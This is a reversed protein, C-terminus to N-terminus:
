APRAQQRATARVATIVTHGFPTPRIPRRGPARELLRQGLEHELRKIQTILTTHQVGLGISAERITPYRSTEAFRHLRRWCGPGTIAPRLIPPAAAAAATLNMGPRYNIAVPIDYRHAWHIIASKSVGKEAALDALSRGQTIYEHRLWARTLIPHQYTAYDRGGRVPIGYAHALRSANGRPLGTRKDIQALSLGEEVYLQLFVDRPLARRATGPAAHVTAPRPPAPYLDLVVHAATTNVGLQKAAAPISLQDDRVLRHLRPLDLHDPDPGPLDLDDVLRLPPQWTVPEDTIGQRNLFTLAYDDMAHALAPTMSAPIQTIRGRLWTTETAIGTGPAWFPTGTLKEFLACRAVNARAPSGPPAGAARCLRQWHGAPLLTRYDLQRRRQYDIVMDHSDVYDVLRVMATAIDTWWRSAHLLQVAFSMRLNTTAQGLLAAAQGLGQRAGILLLLASVAPRLIRIYGGDPPCLRVTWSPWLQAPMGTARRRTTDTDLDPERPTPTTTRYRLQDTPRLGPGLAALQVAHLVPGTTRGWDDVCSPSPIRGRPPPVSILGRLTQAATQVDAAHLVRYAAVLGCAAITASAASMTGPRVRAIATPRILDAHALTHIQATILDHPPGTLEPHHYLHAITRAAIARMDALVTTVPQPYDAYVGFDATGAEIVQYLLIQTRLAPHDRPLRLTDARSLDTDCRVHAGTSGHLPRHDHPSVPNACYGPRPPQHQGSNYTRQPRDCVPCRDALLRRHTPCAFAWALRWATQWRGGTAALCDPCYRSGRGRGWITRVNVRRTVPDILVARQDYRALTMVAVDAAPLGTAISITRIETSRLLITRDAPTDRDAGRSSKAPLGLTPLLDILPVALRAALADLWSDLAEGPVPPVRIPLTRTNV